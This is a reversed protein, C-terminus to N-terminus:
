EAKRPADSPPSGIIIPCTFISPLSGSGDFPVYEAVLSSDLVNLDAGISSFEMDITYAGSSCVRYGGNSACTIEDTLGGAAGTYDTDVVRTSGALASNNVELWCLGADAGNLTENYVYASGSVIIWGRGPATITATIRGTSAVDGDVTADDSAYAVRNLSTVDWGDLLDANLNAVHGTSNVELPPVSNSDVDVTVGPNANGIALLGGGTGAGGNSTAVMAYRNGSAATAFLAHNSSSTFVGGTGTNADGRIGNASAGANTQAVAFANGNVNANLKTTLTASNTSSGLILAAGNAGAVIGSTFVVIAVALVTAFRANSWTRRM